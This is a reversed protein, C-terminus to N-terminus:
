AAGEKGHHGLSRSLQHAHDILLQALAPLQHTIRDSPGSIGLAAVVRGSHDRVPAAVADLGIELEGLAVAYGQRRVDKLQRRLAAPATITHRTRRELRDPVAIAGDAYMVFLPGAGYGGDHDRLVLRHRELAQLLRSATSKPLGSGSVLDGFAPPEEALVVLSLLEAARDVAQTGNASM